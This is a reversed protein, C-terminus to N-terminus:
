ANTETTVKWTTDFTMGQCRNDASASLAIADPVVVPITDGQVNAAALVDALNNAGSLTLKGKCYTVDAANGSAVTIDADTLAVPEVRTVKMPVDNTNKVTLSVKTKQNPFLTTDEATGSVTLTVLKAAGANVASSESSNSFAAWAVGGGIAVAAVAGAVAITTGRKKTKSM